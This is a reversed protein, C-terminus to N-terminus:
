LQFLAVIILKQSTLCYLSSRSCSKNKNKHQMQTIVKLTPEESQVCKKQRIKWQEYCVLFEEKTIARIAQTMATQVDETTAFDRGKVVSKIKPFLFIVRHRIRQILLSPCFQFAKVRWFSGYPYGLSIFNLLRGHESSYTVSNKTAQIYCHQNIQQKDLLCKVKSKQMHAKKKTKTFKTLAM